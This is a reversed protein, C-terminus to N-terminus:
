FHYSLTFLLQHRNNKVSTASTTNSESYTTGNDTVTASLPAYPYFDGKQTSYQYAFDLNFKGLAYGLGCTFRNMDKWNVYDDTSAYYSGDSPLTNDKYGSKNYLSSVYNYGIRVALDKIPKYEAGLKLTSVGKLTRDTHDNMVRDNRSSTNWTDSWYDYYEDTNIRSKITSYDAYEYTAGLALYNGVTHGLSFGFRWPTFIKFDYSENSHGQDYGGLQTGNLLTTYNSTTLDYWTPTHVYIGFRFPSNEIPRFIAGFKVDFGSGTIKRNDNLTLTGVGAGQADILNEVYTSNGKYHVDYLGFTLGLFVRDNINGSINFDYEGIYGTHARDFTYQNAENYGATQNNPDVIFANWLLYDLQTFNPATYTSKADEYGIYEGQENKDITFGGNEVSGLMNKIYSHKSMSGGRVSNAASLIYDMNRSKTYNFGFNLFSRRGSRTSWVFGGQDFSANTTHGNTFDHGDGQSVLGASVSAVSHKYLGIGAPNTGITTLDAGLAELAGGMGVYRATGNLDKQSIKANEYTEQAAVSMSAMLSAALIIYTKKM